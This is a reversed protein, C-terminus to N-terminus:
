AAPTTMTTLRQKLEAPLLNNAPKLDVRPRGGFVQYARNLTRDDWITTLDNRTLTEARFADLVGGLMSVVWRNAMTVIVPSMYPDRFWSLESAETEQRGLLLWAFSVM